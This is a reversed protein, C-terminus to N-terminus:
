GELKPRDGLNEMNGWDVHSLPQIFLQLVAGDITGALDTRRNIGAVAMLGKKHLGAGTGERIKIRRQNMLVQM